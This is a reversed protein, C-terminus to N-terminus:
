MCYEGAWLIDPSESNINYVGAHPLPQSVTNLRRITRRPHKPAPKSNQLVIMPLSHNLVLLSLFFILRDLLAEQIKPM